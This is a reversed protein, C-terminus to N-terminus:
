NSTRIANLQNLLTSDTIKEKIPNKYVYYLKSGTIESIATARDTWKSRRFSVYNNQSLTISDDVRSSYDTGYLGDLTTVFYNNCKILPMTGSTSPFIDNNTITTVFNFYIRPISDEWALTETGTVVYKGIKKELYWDGDEYYITDAYNDIKNLETNGLSIPYVHEKYEEWETATNGEELQVRYVGNYGKILIGINTTKNLTFTKSIFDANALSFLGVIYSSNDDYIGATNDGQTSQELFQLSLTYTGAPLTLHWQSHSYGWTRGDSSTNEDYIYDDENVYIHANNGRFVINYYDLINKGTIKLTSDGTVTNVEQPYDPNPSPEGGVYPEYVFNNATVNLNNLVSIRFTISGSEWPTLYM